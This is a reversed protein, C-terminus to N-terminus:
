TASWKLISCVPPEALRTFRPHSRSRGWCPISRWRIAMRFDIDNFLANGYFNGQSYTMLVVRACSDLLNVLNAKAKLTDDADHIGRYAANIDTLFEQVATVAEPEKIYEPDGNFFRKIALRTAANADQLKHRAVQL